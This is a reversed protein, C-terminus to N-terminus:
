SISYRSYGSGTDLGDLLGSSAGYAAAGAFPNQTKLAIIVGPTGNQPDGWLFRQEAEQYPRADRLGAMTAWLVLAHYVIAIRAHAPVLTPATAAAIVDPPTIYRAYPGNAYSRSINGPFRIRVGEWVYDASKDFYAGPRLLRGNASDYLEVYLPTISNAFPYTVGSDASTLLTPAGTLVWPCHSAFVNYLHAQGDSLYQYWDADAM